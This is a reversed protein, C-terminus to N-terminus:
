CVLLLVYRCIVIFNKRFPAYSQSFEAFKPFRIIVSAHILRLKFIRDRVCLLYSTPLPELGKVTIVYKTVSNLSFM